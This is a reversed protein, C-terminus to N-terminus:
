VFFFQMSIPFNQLQSCVSFCPVSVQAVFKYSGQKLDPTLLPERDNAMGLLLVSVDHTTIM